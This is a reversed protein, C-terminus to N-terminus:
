ILIILIIIFFFKLLKYRFWVQLSSGRQCVMKTKLYLLALSMSAHEKPLKNRAPLQLEELFLNM